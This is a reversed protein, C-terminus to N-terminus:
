LGYRRSTITTQLATKVREEVKDSVTESEIFFTLRPQYRVTECRAISLGDPVNCEQDGYCHVRTSCTCFGNQADFGYKLDDDPNGPDAPQNTKCDSNQKPPGAFPDGEPHLWFEAHTIDVSDPTIPTFGAPACQGYELVRHPNKCKGVQSPVNTNEECVGIVDHEMPCGNGSNLTLDPGYARFVRRMGDADKTAVEPIDFPYVDFDTGFEAKDKYYSYDIGDSRVSQAIVDMVYRTDGQLKALLQTRRQAKSTSMLLGVAIVIVTGFIAAAILVEILTFGNRSHLIRRMM